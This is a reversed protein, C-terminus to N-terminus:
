CSHVGAGLPHVEQPAEYGAVEAIGKNGPAFQTSVTHTVRYAFRHCRLHFLKADIGTKFLCSIQSKISKKAATLKQLRVGEQCKGPSAGYVTLTLHRKM